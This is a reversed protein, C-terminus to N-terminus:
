NNAVSQTKKRARQHGREPSEFLTAVAGIKKGGRRRGRKRKEPRSESGTNKKEGGDTKKRNLTATEGTGDV